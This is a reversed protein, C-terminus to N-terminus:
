GAVVRRHVLYALFAAALAAVATHTQGEAKQVLHIEILIGSTM